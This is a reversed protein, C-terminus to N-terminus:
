TAESSEGAQGADSAFVIGVVHMTTYYMVGALTKGRTAGAISDPPFHLLLV